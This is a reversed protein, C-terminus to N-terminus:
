SRCRLPLSRLGRLMIGNRYTPRRGQLDIRAFRELLTEFAIRGELRALPAGLCRHIGRGLSLHPNHARGVDLRDPEEFAEPDRNAAGILVVVNDRARLEFGNVACDARVRRITAQVPSDFRLLEDVAAPILGPDDRLRALQDPNALLALMGNGILNTATENGAILLLRLMNLMERESLREGGDEAHALASLIDDRPEARRMAIAARFYADFEQSADRAIARERHSITPELLRARQTSWRRFRDRDGAPVGLMGAIAVIPLPRAFAAMLDFGGPDDVADLLEAAVARLRAELAGVARATFAKSVLARLRTHDPPDLILMTFEDALPLMAQQRRTLKGVRPDSAFSRHDRLIADADAHRTILWANM